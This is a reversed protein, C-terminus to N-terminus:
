RTVVRSSFRNRRGQDNKNTWRKKWAKVLCRTRSHGWSKRWWNSTPSVTVKQERQRRPNHSSQLAWCWFHVTGSSFYNKTFFFQNEVVRMASFAILIKHRYIRQHTDPPFQLSSMSRIIQVDQLSTETQFSAFAGFLLHQSQCFTLSRFENWASYWFGFLKVILKTGKSRPISQNWYKRWFVGV